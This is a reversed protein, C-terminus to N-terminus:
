KGRRNKEAFYLAYLRQVYPRFDSDVYAKGHAGAARIWNVQEDTLGNGQRLTAEMSVISNAIEFARKQRLSALAADRNEGRIEDTQSQQEDKLRALQRRQRDLERRQEERLVELERRQEEIERRQRSEEQERQQQEWKRRFPDSPNTQGIAPVILVAILTILFAIGITQMKVMKAGHRKPLETNKM